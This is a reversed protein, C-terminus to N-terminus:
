CALRTGEKDAFQVASAEEPTLDTAVRPGLPVSKPLGKAMALNTAVGLTTGIGGALDGHQAEDSAKEMTSGVGPIANLLWNVGHRIGEVYDGRKFADVAAARPADNASGMQTLTQQPHTALARITDGIGQLQKVPNVQDWWNSAAHGLKALTGSDTPHPVNVADSPLMVGDNPHPVDVADGPLTVRNSHDLTYGPPPVIDAATAMGIRAPHEPVIDAPTAMGMQPRDLTFGPPPTIQGGM